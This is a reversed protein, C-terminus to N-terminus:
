FKVGATLTFFHMLNYSTDDTGYYSVNTIQSGLQYGTYFNLDINKKLNIGVGPKIGFIFGGYQSVDAYYYNNNDSSVLNRCMYGANLQMLPAVKTKTFTLRLDVYVPVSVFGKRAILGTSLGLFVYRNFKYGPTVTIMNTPYPDNPVWIAIGEDLYLEFGKAKRTDSHTGGANGPIVEKTIKEVEDMQYVFVNRDKTQIKLSKGPIQEIIVGRIISGNKLYVVEEYDALTQASLFCSSFVLLLFLIQKM